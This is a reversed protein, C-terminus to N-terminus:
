AISSFTAVDSYAQTVRFTGFGGDSSFSNVVFIGLVGDANVGWHGNAERFIETDGDEPYGHLVLDVSGGEYHGNTFVFPWPGAAGVPIFGGRGAILPRNSRTVNQFNIGWGTSTVYQVDNGRPCIYWQNTGTAGQIAFSFESIISKLEQVQFTDDGGTLSNVLVRALAEYGATTPHIQDASIYAPIRALLSHAGACFSAGIESAGYYWAQVARYLQQFTVPHQTGYRRWGAPVITIHANPYTNKCYNNFAKIGSVIAALTESSDNYCGTVVIDTLSTKENPTLQNEIAKLLMLFTNNPKAFGAGGIENHWYKGDQLVGWNEMYNLFSTTLGDSTRGAQYSDGIFIFTRNSIKNAAIPRSRLEAIASEANTLRTNQTNNVTVAGDATSQAGDAATQAADAAAQARDIADSFQRVEQRYAEIQSNWNGTQLWYATNTIAIGAPVYQRSTYSNGEHLVITLPEYEFTSKWEASGTGDDFFVPIYRAGIYEKVDLRQNGAM